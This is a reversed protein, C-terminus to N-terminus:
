PRSAGIQSELIFTGAGFLVEARSGIRTTFANIEAQLMVGDAVALALMGLTASNILIIDGAGTVLNIIRDWKSQLAASLGALRIAGPAIGTLFTGKSVQNTTIVVAGANTLSNLEDAVAQDQATLFLNALGLGLPDSQCESAIAAYFQDPTMIEEEIILSRFRDLTPGM